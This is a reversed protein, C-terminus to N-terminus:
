KEIVSVINEFVNDEGNITVLKGCKKYYDLIPKTNEIYTKYRVKFTEETDDERITLVEGCNDCIDTKLPIKYFKNYIEKCNSCIMRGLVRKLLVEYSVDLNIVLDLNLGLKNLLKDLTYVQEINRPVGDLIFPKDIGALKEELLEFILEDSVLNGEDIIKNVKKGLASNDDIDRLLDGTSIHEYGFKMVLMDSQTGKGGAPPAIFLINKM